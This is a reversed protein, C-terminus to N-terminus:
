YVGIFLSDDPDMPKSSYGALAHIVRIKDGAVFTVSPGRMVAATYRTSGSTERYVYYTNYSQDIEGNGVSAITTDYDDSIGDACGNYSSGTSSTFSFKGTGGGSTITSYTLSSADSPTWPIGDSSQASSQSTHTEWVTTGTWQSSFTWSNKLTDGASNLHQVGAVCIDNYYTTSATVKIAIYIRGSGSFDTQVEGVDYPGNYDASNGMYTNSEIFRNSIEYFSSSIDEGTPTEADTITLTGSEKIIPGSVSGTRIEIKATNSESLSDGLPKIGFTGNPDVTFSGTLSNNLFDAAVLATGSVTSISYYLTEDSPFGETTVTFTTVANEPLNSGNSGTFTLVKPAIPWKDSEMNNFQDFLNYVGSASPPMKKITRRLGIVGSNNRM